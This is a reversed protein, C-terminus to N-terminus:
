GIKLRKIGDRKRVWEGDDIATLQVVPRGSTTAHIFEKGSVAMGVHALNAFFLLDGPLVDERAVPAMREDAAQQHADRPLGIGHLRYVLQVLGSCDLGWPTTGGWRYPIGILRRACRVLGEQLTGPATWAWETGDACFDGAQIFDASGGPSVVKWWRTEGPIAPGALSLPAGLPATLNLRSRVDPSAYLHAFLGRIRAIRPPDGPPWGGPTFRLAPAWGEYGDHTLVLKLWGGAEREIKATDGLRAQTVVETDADPAGHLSVVGEHATVISGLIMNM